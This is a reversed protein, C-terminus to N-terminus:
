GGKKRARGSRTVVINPTLWRTVPEEVVPERPPVKVGASRLFLDVVKRSDEEDMVRSPGRAPAKSKRPM